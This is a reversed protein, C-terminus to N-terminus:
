ILCVTSRKYLIVVPRANTDFDWHSSPRSSKETTTSAPTRRSFRRNGPYSRTSSDQPLEILQGPIWEEDDLDEEATAMAVDAGVKDGEPVGGAAAMRKTSRQEVAMEEKVSVMTTYRALGSGIRGEATSTTCLKMLDDEGFGTWAPEKEVKNVNSCRQM